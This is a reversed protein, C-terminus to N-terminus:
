QICNADWSNSMNDSICGGGQNRDSVEANNVLLHCVKVYDLVIDLMWLDFEAKEEAKDIM